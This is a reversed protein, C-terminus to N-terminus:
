NLGRGIADITTNVLRVYGRSRVKLGGFGGNYEASYIGLVENIDNESVVYGRSQLIDILARSDNKGPFAVALLARPISWNHKTALLYALLAGSRDGGHECHIYIQRPAYSQLQSAFRSPKPFKGGFPINIHAIGLEQMREQNLRFDDTQMSAATLILRVDHAYLEAIQDANPRAGIWYGEVVQRANKPLGKFALRFSAGHLAGIVLGTSLGKQFHASIETETEKVDVDIAKQANQPNPNVADLSVDM